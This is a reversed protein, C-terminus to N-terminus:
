PESREDCAAEINCRWAGGGDDDDLGGRVFGDAGCRVCRRAHLARAKESQLARYEPSEEYRKRLRASFRARLDPSRRVASRLERFEPTAALKRMAEIHNARSVEDRWSRIVGARHKERYDPNAWRKQAALSRANM